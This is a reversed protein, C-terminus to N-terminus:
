RCLDRRWKGPLNCCAKRKSQVSWLRNRYSKEGSLTDQNRTKEAILQTPTHGTVLYTNEFISGDMIQDKGYLIM